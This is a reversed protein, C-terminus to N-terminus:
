AKKKKKGKGKKRKKKKKKAEEAALMDKPMKKRPRPISVAIVGLVILGFTLAWGLGYETQELDQALLTFSNLFEM